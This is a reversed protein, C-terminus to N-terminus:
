LQLQWISRIRVITCCAKSVLRYKKRGCGLREGLQNLDVKKNLLMSLTQVTTPDNITALFRSLSLYIGDVCYYLQDFEEGGINFTFDINNHSGDLMSKLLPSRGWININNLLGPLGFTNRWIWLNYDAVAELGITPYGEKGEFQGKWAVPCASWHIKTVDLCGLCGDIGYVKKHL